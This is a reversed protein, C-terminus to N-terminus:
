DLGPPLRELSRFGLIVFEWGTGTRARMRRVVALFSPPLAGKGRHRGLVVRAGRITRAHGIRIESFPRGGQESTVFTVPYKKDM